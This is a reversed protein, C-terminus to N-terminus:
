AKKNLATDITHILQIVLPSVTPHSAVLTAIQPGFMEILIQALPILAPLLKQWDFAPPKVPTLTSM